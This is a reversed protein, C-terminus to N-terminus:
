QYSVFSFPVSTLEQFTKGSELIDEDDEMYCWEISVNKNHNELKELKKIIQLLMKSSATNFYELDFRVITKEHPNSFYEEIWVLIPTYFSRADDPLSRGLFQIRGISGSRDLLIEPTRETASIGVYEKGPINQIEEYLKKLSLHTM